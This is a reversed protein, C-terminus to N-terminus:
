NQSPKLGLSSFSLIAIMIIVVSLSLLKKKNMHM